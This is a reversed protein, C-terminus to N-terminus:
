AMLLRNFFSRYRQFAVRLEETSPDSGASWAGELRKREDSFATTLEKMVEDVLADAEAISDRPEDVFRIQIENWRGMWEDARELLPSDDTAQRGDDIPEDPTPEDDIPEDPTPENSGQLAEDPM